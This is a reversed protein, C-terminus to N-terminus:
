TLNPLSVPWGLAERTFYVANQLWRSPGAVLSNVTSSWLRELPDDPQFCALVHAATTYMVRSALWAQSGAGLHLDKVANHREALKPVLLACQSYVERGIQYGLYRAVQVAKLLCWRDPVPVLDLWQSQWQEVSLVGVPIVHTKSLNLHLNVVVGLLLFYPKLCHLEDICSVVCALDDVFACIMSRPLRYSIYQLWPDVALLFLFCSLPDGQLLGEGINFAAWSRRRWQFTCRKPGLIAFFFNYLSDPIGSRLLVLRVWDRRTSPFAQCLDALLVCSSPSSDAAKLVGSELAALASACDRGSSFGHQSSSVWKESESM